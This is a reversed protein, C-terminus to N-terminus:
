RVLTAKGTFVKGDAVMRYFYTGNNLDAGDWTVTYLGSAKQDDVLTAVASGKVDYVRLTVHTERPIMFSINTTNSFPNPYSDFLALARAKIKARSSVAPGDLAGCHFPACMEDNDPNQDPVWITTACIEHGGEPLPIPSFEITMVEGPNLTDEITKTEQDGSTMIMIFVDFFSAPETGFNKVHVTPIYPNCGTPGPPDIGNVGIDSTKCPPCQTTIIPCETEKKPCRTVVEPCVTPVKKKTCKTDILPCKTQKVKKPCRTKVYPCKTPEKKRPCRTKKVPCKTKEWPCMTPIPQALCRTHIVPCKTKERPCKTPKPKGPCETSRKPCWTEISCKTRDKPDTTWGDPSQDPNVGEIASDAVRDADPAANLGRFEGLAQNLTQEYLPSDASEQTGRATNMGLLAVAAVMILLFPTLRNASKM